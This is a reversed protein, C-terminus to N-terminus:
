AKKKLFDRVMSIFLAPNMAKLLILSNRRLPKIIIGMIVNTFIQTVLSAAAAGAAGYLPILCANLAVNAVAGSMNLWILYKQKGETLIWIDKAGGYYSFATYWVIIRLVTVAPMYEEGYLIRIIPKALVTMAASQLLALYIILSYTKALNNEYAEKSVKASEFIAPRSSDIIAIFVFNTIAACTVAATYYGTAAEDIMQKLMIRDTQAFITVM